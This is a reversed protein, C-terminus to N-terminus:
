IKETESIEANAIGDSFQIKIKDGSSLNEIKHGFNKLIKLGFDSGLKGGAMGGCAVVVTKFEEHAGNSILTYFEQKKIVDDVKASVKIEVGMETACFRLADVVSTAQLSLPYAKGGDEERFLIGIESFFEKQKLYNFGSIINWKM